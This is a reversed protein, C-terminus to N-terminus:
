ERSRQGGGNHQLFVRGSVNGIIRFPKVPRNWDEQEASRIQAFLHLSAALFVLAKFSRM